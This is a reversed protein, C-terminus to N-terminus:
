ESSNKLLEWEFENEKCFDKLYNIVGETYGSPSPIARGVEAILFLLESKDLNVSVVSFTVSGPDPNRTEQSWSWHESCLPLSGLPHRGPRM